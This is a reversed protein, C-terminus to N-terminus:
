AVVKTRCVLAEIRPSSNKSCALPTCRKLLGNVSLSYQILYGLRWDIVLNREILFYWGIYNPLPTSLSEMSRRSAVDVLSEYLSRIGGLDCGKCFIEVNCEVHVSRYGTLLGIESSLPVRILSRQRDEILTM